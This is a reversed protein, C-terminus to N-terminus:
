KKVLAGQLNNSRPKVRRDKTEFIYALVEEETNFLPTHWDGYKAKEYAEGGGELEDPFGTYPFFVAQWKGSTDPSLERDELQYVEFDKLHDLNFWREHGGYVEHLKIFRM